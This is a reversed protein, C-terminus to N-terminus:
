DSGYGCYDLAGGEPIMGWQTDIDELVGEADWQDSAADVDSTSVLSNGSRAGHYCDLPIECVHGHVQVRDAKRPILCPDFFVYRPLTTLESSCRGMRIRNQAEESSGHRAVKGGLAGVAARAKVVCPSMPVVPHAAFPFLTHPYVMVEVLLMVAEAIIAIVAQKAVAVVAPFSRRRLLISLWLALRVNIM